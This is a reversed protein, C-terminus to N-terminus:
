ADQHVNTILIRHTKSSHFIDLVLQQQQESMTAFLLLPNFQLLLDYLAHMAKEHEPEVNLITNEDIKLYQAACSAVWRIDFNEFETLTPEMPLYPYKLRHDFSKSLARDLFISSQSIMKEVDKKSIYMMIM